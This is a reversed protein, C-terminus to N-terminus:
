RGRGERDNELWYNNTPQRTREKVNGAWRQAVMYAYVGKVVMYM